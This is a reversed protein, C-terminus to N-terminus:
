SKVRMVSESEVKAKGQQNFLEAIIEPNKTDVFINPLTPTLFVMFSFLFFIWM